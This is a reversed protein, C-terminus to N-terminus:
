EREPFIIGSTPEFFTQITGLQLVASFIFFSYCCFILVNLCSRVCSFFESTLATSLSVSSVRVDFHRQLPPVMVRCITFFLNFIDFDAFHHAQM